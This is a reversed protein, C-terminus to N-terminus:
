AAVCTRVLVVVKVKQWILVSHFSLVKAAVRPRQPRLFLREEVLAFTCFFIKRVLDPPFLSNTPLPDANVYLTKVFCWKGWM